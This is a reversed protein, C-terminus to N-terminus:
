MHGLYCFFIVSYRGVAFGGGCCAGVVNYCRLAIMHGHQQMLADIAEVNLRAAHINVYGETSSAMRALYQSAEVGGGAEEAEILIGIGFSVNAGIGGVVEGEHTAVKAVQFVPHAIVVYVM